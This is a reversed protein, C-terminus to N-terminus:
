VKRERLAEKTAEIVLRDIKQVDPTEPVAFKNIEKFKVIMEDAYSVVQDYTLSGKRIALLEEADPRRVNVVGTTLIEYGSRLLRILHMAHKCDYGFVVEDEHRSKNRAAMWEIYQHRQKKVEKYKMQDFVYRGDGSTHYFQEDEEDPEELGTTSSKLKKRAADNLDTMYTDMCADKPMARWFSYAGNLQGKPEGSAILRDYEKEFEAEIREVLNSGFKWQVWAESIKSSVVLPWLVEM